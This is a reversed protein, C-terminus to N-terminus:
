RGLGGGRNPGHNPGHHRHPDARHPAAEPRAPRRTTAHQHRQAHEHDARHTPLTARVAQEARLETLRGRAQAATTPGPLWTTAHLIHRVARYADRAEATVGAAREPVTDVDDAIAADLHEHWRGTLDAHAATAAGARWATRGHDGTFPAAAQRQLDTLRAHAHQEATTAAALQDQAADQDRVLQAQSTGQARLALRGRDALPTLEALRAVRRGAASSCAKTERGALVVPGGRM